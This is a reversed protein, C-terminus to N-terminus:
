RLCREKAAAADQARAALLPYRSALASWFAAAREYGRAASQLAERDKTRNGAWEFDEALHFYSMGAEWSYYMYRALEPGLGALLSAAEDQEATTESGGCAGAIGAARLLIRALDLQLDESAVGLRRQADVAARALDRAEACSGTRALVAARAQWFNPLRAILISYKPAKKISRDVAEAMERSVAAGRALDDMGGRALYALALQAQGYEADVEPQVNAADEAARAWIQPILKEWLAIAQSPQNRSPYRFSWAQEAADMGDRFRAAISNAANPKVRLIDDELQIARKLSREARDLDALRAQVIALRSVANALSHFAEPPSGPPVAREYQAIAKQTSDLADELEYGGAQITALYLWGVGATRARERDGPSERQARDGLTAARRSLALAENHRSLQAKLRAYSGLDVILRDRYEPKRGEIRELIAIANAYNGAGAQDMGLSGAGPKAQVDALSDYAVALEWLLETDNGADASLKRLYQEATSALMQRAKTNGPVNAIQKDFDFLFRTALTRLDQFRANAIRAEYVSVALGALISATLATVGLTWAWNRRLFKASRYLVTDPRSKVPRNKLYREIDDAFEQVSGFRRAPEKRLATLLIADLDRSIGPPQPDTLCVAKHLEVPSTSSVEYPRRSTLLEYLIVGLSYIDTATTIPQGLVQEPSAYGPTLGSLGTQTATATPDLLKAIGFDLLKPQGDGDVLINGPKLDRHVVLNRHAFQAADCVKLFLELRARLSLQRENAWTLLNQGAVFEMVIYPEHDETEGGDLLRAIGPHDLGALIQREQRFRELALPSEMGLRVVKIAVEKRYVNDDRVARYVAGMGGYGITGVTRYPGFRRGPSEEREAACLTERGESVAASIADSAGSDSELLDEIIFRLDPRGACAGDLYGAREAAPIEVAAAFIEGALNWDASTM